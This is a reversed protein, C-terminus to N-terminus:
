VSTEASPRQLFRASERDDQGCGDDGSGIGGARCAGIDLGVGFDGRGIALDQSKFRACPRARYTAKSRWETAREVQQRVRNRIRRSPIRHIRALCSNARRELVCARLVSVINAQRCAEEVEERTVDEPAKTAGLKINFEITGSYLTPEQAVLAMSKRYSAVQYDAINHGDLSVAGALPDYFRSILQITTSKGSGSPGVIAVYKGAPIRLSLGRLVPIKPRTPYRFHVSDLVIDGKVDAIDLPKGETSEADIVPVADLSRFIANGASRARSVDPVFNFVNGAQISAFVISNLVTFFSSTSITQDALWRSGVWFVLAIVFFSMAQSAAYLLTSTFATRKAQKLPGQLENHYTELTDHEKCLYMVTKIAAVAETAKQASSSHMKRTKEQAQVVVKLRIFGASVLLPICAIGIAALKPGFSLGIIVGILVTACSQIITGLTVGAIGSINQPHKSLNSTLTGSAHKEDDFFSIDQRLMSKFYLKRIKGVLTEASRILTLQQVVIFIAALIAIIFYWLANRRSGAKLQEPDLDSFTNIAKGFVIAMVPYVAGSLISAIFGGVYLWKQERNLAYCRRALWIMGHKSNDDDDENEHDAKQEALVESALSRGTARRDLGPMEPKGSTGTQTRSLKREIPGEENDFQDADEREKEAIMQQATVLKSYASDPNATLSRHDGSELLRGGGMVLIKDAGAITSLRHAVTITTRGRSAKELADTVVRESEADLAATAEDLLLIVPNSVIARAIAVRSKQGGSLLSGRTGASQDYGLDFASIFDHANATKAAEICLKRQEEIPAHEYPTGILGLRINNLISMEFLVPEQGVVGCQARLWKINLQRIDVGDLLVRGKAPDYLRSILSVITSKGSGSAGVLATQQGSEFTQTFDQLVTIQRSPYAFTVDEFTIRGEVKTPRLGGEDASNINPVREITSFLKAASGRGKNIAELEPNLM